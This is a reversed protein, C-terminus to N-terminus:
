KQDGTTYFPWQRTTLSKPKDCCCCNLDHDNLPQIIASYTNCDSIQQIISIYRNSLTTQAEYFQAWIQLQLPLHVLSTYRWFRIVKGKIGFTPGQSPQRICAFCNKKLHAGMAQAVGITTTSKGEGFPTPTM